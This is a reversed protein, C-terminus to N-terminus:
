SINLSSICFCLSMNPFIFFLFSCLWFDFLNHTHSLIERLVLKSLFGEFEEQINKHIHIKVFGSDSQM